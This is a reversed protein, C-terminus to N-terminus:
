RIIQPQCPDVTIDTGVLASSTAGESDTATVWISLTGGQNSEGPYPVPGIAGYFNGDWSMPSQGTAFGSWFVTVKLESAPDRDDSASVVPFAQTRRDTCPRGDIEQAITGGPDTV